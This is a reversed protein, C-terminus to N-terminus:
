ASSVALGFVRVHFVVVLALPVWVRVATARSAAPLVAVDAATVTVTLLPSVVAGVTVTVAGAPPAVTAPVATVTVALAESLTPTAPTCNLTSPAFKPASSVMLGYEVAHFVVVAVLPVCVSVATARSAAPLVVVAAECLTVTLLVVDPPHGHEIQGADAVGARITVVSAFATSSPTRNEASVAPVTVPM